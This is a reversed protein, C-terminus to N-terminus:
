STPCGQGDVATGPPTDPCQDLGDYVGDGDSDIPCGHIDVEAGEPTGPCKDMGLGDYVGDRDADRPCGTTDVEIGPMTDPCPDQDDPVGDSDSDPAAEVEEVPPTDVVVPVALREAAKRPSEWRPVKAGRRWHFGISLYPQTLDQGSLGADALSHDARYEWRLFRSGGLAIWQGIGASLVTSTYDTAADFTINTIGAALSLFFPNRRGALFPVELGARGTISNADGRLTETEVRSISADAFWTFDRLPFPGGLRANFTPEAAPGDPGALSEDVFVFGVAGGLELAYPGQENEAGAPVGAGALLLAILAAHLVSNGISNV